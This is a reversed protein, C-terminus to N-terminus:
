AKEAMSKDRGDFYTGGALGLGGDHLCIHKDTLLGGTLLGQGCGSRLLRNGLLEEPSPSCCISPYPRTETETWARDKNRELEISPRAKGQGPSPPDEQARPPPVVPPGTPWASGRSGLTPLHSRPEIIEPLTMSLSELIISPSRGLDILEFLLYVRHRHRGDLSPDTLHGLLQLTELGLEPLGLALLLGSTPAFRPPEVGLCPPRYPHLGLWSGPPPATESSPGISM